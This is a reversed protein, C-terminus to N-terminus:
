YWEAVFALAAGLWLILAFFHALERGFRRWLPEPREETVRNPGFEQLRRQAEERGLGDTSSRLSELAERPTLHQIKM